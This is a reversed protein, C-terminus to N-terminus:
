GQQSNASLRMSMEKVHNVVERLRNAGEPQLIDFNWRTVPAVDATLSPHPRPLREPQLVKTVSDYEYFSVHQGFASIGYLTPIPTTKGLTDFRRRM